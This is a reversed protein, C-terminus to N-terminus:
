GESEDDDGDAVQGNVSIVLGPYHETTGPVKWSPKQKMVERFQAHPNFMANMFNNFATNNRCRLRVNKCMKVLLWLQQATLKVGFAAEFDKRFQPIDLRKM